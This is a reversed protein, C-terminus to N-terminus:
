RNRRIFDELVPRIQELQEILWDMRGDEQMRDSLVTLHHINGTLLHSELLQEDSLDNDPTWDQTPDFTM